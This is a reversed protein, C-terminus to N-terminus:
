FVFQAPVTRWARVKIAWPPAPSDPPEAAPPATFLLERVQTFGAQDQAEAQADVLCHGTSTVQWLQDPPIPVPMPAAGPEPGPRPLSGLRRIRLGFGARDSSDRAGAQSGAPLSEEEWGAGAELRALLPRLERGADEASWALFWALGSEAASAARAAQWAAGGTALERVLNRSTAFAAAAMLVLLLFAM